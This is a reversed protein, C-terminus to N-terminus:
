KSDHQRSNVRELTWKMGAGDLRIRQTKEVAASAETIHGIKEYASSLLMYADFSHPDVELGRSLNDVAKDTKGQDLYIRGGEVVAISSAPNIQLARDYYQLAQKWDRQRAYYNA